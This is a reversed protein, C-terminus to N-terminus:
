SYRFMNESDTKICVFFFWHLLLIWRTFERIRKNSDFFGISFSLMERRLTLLKLSHALSLHTSCRLARSCILLNYEFSTWSTPYEVRRSRKPALEAFAIAFSRSLVIERHRQPSEPGTKTRPLLDDLEISFNKAVQSRIVVYRRIAFIKNQM